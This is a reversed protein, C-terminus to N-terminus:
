TSAHGHSATVYPVEEDENLAEIGPPATTSPGAYCRHSQDRREEIPPAGFLNQHHM